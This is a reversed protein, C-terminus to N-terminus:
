EILEVFTSIDVLVELEPNDYVAHDPLLIRPMEAKFWTLYQETSIVSDPAISPIQHNYGMSYSLLSIKFYGTSEEVQLILGPLGNFKWPGFQVPIKETFWANYDRGHFHATAKQCHFGGITLTDECISWKIQNSHETTFTAEDFFEIQAIQEKRTTYVDTPVSFKYEVSGRIIENNIDKVLFFFHNNAGHQSSYFANDNFYLITTDNPMGYNYEVLYHVVGSEKKDCSVHIILVIFILYIYKKM